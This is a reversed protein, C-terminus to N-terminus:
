IGTFNMAVPVMLMVLIAIFLLMTPIMLKSNAKEADRKAMHRREQWAERAMDKLLRGIEANGKSLNQMIASALKATEKTNCRNIFESYAVEPSVLNDLEESTKQMEQYLESEQSYATVKWARDMIMGSTVLLALKSVVNPFQRGIMKRRKKVLDSLEDYIAYVLVLVLVSGIAIIGAGVTKVGAGLLLAGLILTVAVGIIPYSLLKALISKTKNAAHKKGYLEFSKTMISKHIGGKGIAVFERQLVYGPLAFVSLSRLDGGKLRTNARELKRIEKEYDGGQLLRLSVSAIGHIESLKEQKAKNKAQLKEIKTINDFVKCYAATIWDDLTARWLLVMWAATLITAFVLIVIVM